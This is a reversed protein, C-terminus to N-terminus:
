KGSREIYPRTHEAVIDRLRDLAKELAIIERRKAEADTWFHFAIGGFLLVLGYLILDM